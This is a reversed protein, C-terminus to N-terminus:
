NVLRFWCDKTTSYWKVINVDNRIKFMIKSNQLSINIEGKESVELIEYEKNVTLNKILGKGDKILKVSDGKRCRALNKVM